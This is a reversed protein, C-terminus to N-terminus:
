NEMKTVRKLAVIDKEDAEFRFRVSQELLDLKNMIQVNTDKMSQNQQQLTSYLTYCYGVGAFTAFIIYWLSRYSIKILTNEISKAEAM